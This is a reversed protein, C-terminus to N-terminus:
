FKCSFSQWWFFQKSQATRHKNTQGRWRKLCYRYNSYTIQSLDSFHSLAQNTSSKGSSLTFHCAYLVRNIKWLWKSTLLLIHIIKKSGWLLNQKVYKQWRISSINFSPIPYRSYTIYKNKCHSKQVVCQLKRKFWFM